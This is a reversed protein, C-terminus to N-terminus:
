QLTAASQLEGLTAEGWPGLCCWRCLLVVPLPSPWISMHQQQQEMSSDNSEPMLGGQTVKLLLQLICLSLMCGVHLLQAALV